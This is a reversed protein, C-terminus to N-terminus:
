DGDSALEGSALEGSALEGSALIIEAVLDFQMFRLLSALSEDRTQLCVRMNKMRAQEILDLLSGLGTFDLLALHGLDLVLRGGNELQMIDAIHRQMEDQNQRDIRPPMSRVQGDTFDKSELQKNM